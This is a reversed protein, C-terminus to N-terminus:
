FFFDFRGDVVQITETTDDRNHFAGSFTGYIIREDNKRIANFEIKNSNTVVFRKLRNNSDSISFVFLWGSTNAELNDDNNVFFSKQMLRDDLPPRPCYNGQILMLEEGQRFEFGRCGATVTFPSPIGETVFIFEGTDAIIRAAIFQGGTDTATPLTTPPRYNRMLDRVFLCSDEGVNPFEEHVEVCPDPFTILPEDDALFCSSFFFLWGLFLFSSPTNSLM